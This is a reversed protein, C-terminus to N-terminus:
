PKSLEIIRSVISKILNERESLKGSITLTEFPTKNRILRITVTIEDGNVTYSGSPKIADVMQDAEVYVLSTEGGRQRVYNEERLLKQLDRTLELDDYDQEKNQLSPRLIVPKPNALNIKMQDEASFKGIPFNNSSDPTIMIPRQIGGINKAMIPVREQAFGFLDEVFAFDGDRLKAGKMGQLLSYTLLGQGFQSAEYSVADASAGMLVYFGTNDKLTELAKIQDSPLDRKAILSNSLAGAACTDLILVLRKVAKNLKMLEKIEEGSITMAERTQKVSLVSKDTTTAEQTMYLYTDGGAQDPNLNLNLSVGHGALYVIFVDNPSAHSFDAFAKQFDAKTATTIKADPSDFKVSSNAGSSTLLRIHVKSKDGVLAAAGLEVAKAFNEADKAAFSLDLGDGTYDSVGGAIVYIDPPSIRSNDAAAKIERTGSRTGRNSLSGSVNKAIIEVKNEGGDIFAAGLLSVTLVAQAANPDFGAPRADAVVEKGNILVQVQGIGGGRNKLKIKLEKQQATPASFEVEPFLDKKSFLEVKPLPEGKYIKQLLGPVYYMDKMQDLSVTEFGIIYHMLKRADPSADFLGDPTIVVWDKENVAILDCLKKKSTLDRIEINGENVLSFRNDFSVPVAYYNEYIFPIKEALRIETLDGTEAATIIEKGSEIDRVVIGGDYSHSVVSRGDPSFNVMFVSNTNGEIIKRETGGAIDWIRITTDNSGSVLFKGDASFSLSRVKGTHATFTKLKKGTETEWLNILNGNASAITRGDPSFKMMETAQGDIAITRLLHKDAADWVMIKSNFLYDGSETIVVPVVIESTTSALLKNDNSFAVVNLRQDAGKLVNLFEQKGAFDWLKIIGSRDGVAITKGDKSFAASATYSTNNKLQGDIKGSVTNLLNIRGSDTGFVLKAGDPSVAMSTISKGDTEVSKIWRGDKSNWFDLRRYWYTVFSKGDPMFVAQLSKYIKEPQDKNEPASADFSAAIEAGDAVNWLKTEDFEGSSVILKGDPSFEVSAIKSTHGQLTKLEKGDSINWLKVTHDDSASAIVAGGAPSIKVDNIQAQHGGLTKLMKGEVADWVIVTKDHSGSVIFKGDPSFAISAISDTHGELTKIVTGSEPDWLRIAKYYDSALTRGDPSFALSVVSHIGKLTKLQKGTAADWLIINKDYGTTAILKGDKSFVISDVSNSHGTQIVLEAKRDDQAFLISNSFLLLTLLLLVSNIFKDSMFIVGSLFFLPCYFTLLYVKKM